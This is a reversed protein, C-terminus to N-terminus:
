AGLILCIKRKFFLFHEAKDIVSIGTFATTVFSIKQFFEKLFIYSFHRFSCKCFFKSSNSSNLLNNPTVSSLCINLRNLPLHKDVMNMSSPMYLEGNNESYIRISKNKIISQM